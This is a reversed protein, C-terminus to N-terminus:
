QVVEGSDGDIILTKEKKLRYYRALANAKMKDRNALYYDRGYKQLATKDGEQYRKSKAANLREKNKDYYRKSSMRNLIRKHNKLEEPTMNRPRKGEKFVVM